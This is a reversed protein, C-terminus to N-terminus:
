KKSIQVIVSVLHLQDSLVLIQFFTAQSIILLVWDKIWSIVLPVQLVLIRQSLTFASRGRDRSWTMDPHPAPTLPWPSQTLPQPWPPRPRPWPHPHPPPVGHCCHRCTCSEMLGVRSVAASPRFNCSLANGCLNSRSTFWRVSGGVVSSYEAPVYVMCRSFASAGKQRDLDKRHFKWAAADRVSIWFEHEIVLVWLTPPPPFTGLILM